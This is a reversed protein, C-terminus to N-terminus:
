APCSKKGSLHDFGSTVVSRCVADVLGISTARAHEPFVRVEALLVAARLYILRRSKETEGVAVTVTPCPGCCDSSRQLKEDM